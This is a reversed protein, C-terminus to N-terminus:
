NENFYQKMFSKGIPTLCFFNKKFHVSPERDVQILKKKILTSIIGEVTRNSLDINESITKIPLSNERSFIQDLVLYESYNIPDKRKKEIQTLREILQKNTPAIECNSIKNHQLCSVCKMGNREFFKIEKYEFEHGEPCKITQTNNFFDIILTDISASKILQENSSKPPNFSLNHSMCLGYDFSYIVLDHLHKSKVRNYISLYGNLNLNDLLYSLEENIVFVSGNKKNTKNNISANKIIDQLLLHQNEISIKDNFPRKVFLNTKFFKETVEQYYRISANKIADKTIPNDLILCSEYCYSLIYGIKRTINQTVEFLLNYLETEHCDFFIKWDSNKFYYNFRNNLLRKTYDVALNEKQIVSTNNGNYSNYSDFFDLNIQDYKGPELEGEYFRHPYTAIKFKIFNDSLNNLPVIFWDMFFEQGEIEIESYDDLYIYIYKLDLCDRIEILQNILTSRIDLYTRITNQFEKKISSNNSDEAGANIGPTKSLNINVSSINSDSSEHVEKVYNFLTVDIHKFVKDINTSITNLKEHVKDFKASDNKFLKDFLKVSSMKDDIKKKTEKIIIKVFEVYTLYKRLEIHSIVKSDSLYEDPLTTNDVLSKVDIYICLVDEKTIVDNISKQFITSKGTGKRGNVITTNSLNIKNIVGDNPLLDAYISDIITEGTNADELNAKRVLKLSEVFELFQKRQEENYRSM